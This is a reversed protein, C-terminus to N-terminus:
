PADQAVAEIDKALPTVRGDSQLPGQGPAIGIGIGVDVKDNHRRSPNGLWGPLLCHDSVDASETARDRNEAGRVYGEGVNPDYEEVDLSLDHFHVNVEGGFLVHGVRCVNNQVVWRSCQLSSKGM